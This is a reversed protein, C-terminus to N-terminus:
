EAVLNAEPTEVLLHYHNGMLVFAHIRWGTRVCAEDLTDLFIDHDRDDKYISEQRNGRSM